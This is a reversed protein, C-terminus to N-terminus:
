LHVHLDGLPGPGPHLQWSVEISREKSDLTSIDDGVGNSLVPISAFGITPTPFRDFGEVVTPPLARFGGADM